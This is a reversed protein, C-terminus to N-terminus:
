GGEQDICIFPYIGSENYTLNRLKDTFDCLMEYTVCNRSHLEFNGIKYEKCLRTFEGPEPENSACLMIMQGIKKKLSNNIM